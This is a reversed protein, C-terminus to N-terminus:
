ASVVVALVAVLAVGVAAYMATSGGVSQPTPVAPDPHQYGAPAGTPATSGTPTATEGGTDELTQGRESFAEEQVETFDLDPVTLGDVVDTDFQLAADEVWDTSDGRDYRSGAGDEDKQYDMWSDEGQFDDDDTEVHLDPNDREQLTEQGYYSGGDSDDSTSGGGDNGGLGTYEFPNITYM